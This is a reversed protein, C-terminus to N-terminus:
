KSAESVYAITALPTIEKKLVITHKFSLAFDRLFFYHMMCGILAMGM